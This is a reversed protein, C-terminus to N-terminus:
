YYTKENPNPIYVDLTQSAWRQCDEIFQSMRLTDVEGSNSLSLPVKVVEEESIFVEKYLFMSKLFDHTENTDFENGLDRFADRIIPVVVAFYYKVQQSGRPKHLRKLELYVSKGEFEKAYNTLANKDDLILKGNVVKGTFKPTYKETM